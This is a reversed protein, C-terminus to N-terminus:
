TQICTRSYELIREAFASIMCSVCFVMLGFVTSLRKRTSSFMTYLESGRERCYNICEQLIFSVMKCCKYKQFGHQLPHLKDICHNAELRSLILKEYLKSIVPALSISIYSNPNLLSKGHGKHLTIILGDKFSDPVREQKLLENFLKELCMSWDNGGYKLHEYTVNDFSSAKGHPLAHILTSLEEPSVPYSIDCNDSNVDPNNHQLITQVQKEILQKNEDSFREDVSPSYLKNFYTCWGNSIEHPDTLIDDDFRM